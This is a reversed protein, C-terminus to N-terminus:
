GRNHPPACSNRVTLSTPLMIGAFKENEGEITKILQEAAIVGAEAIPTRISTLGPYSCRALITDNYGIVSIDDPISLGAEEIAKMAGIAIFDNRAFVATIDGREALLEKTLLYGNEFQDRSRTGIYERWDLGSEMMAKRFGVVKPSNKEMEPTIDGLIGAISRHGLSLLYKLAECTGEIDNWCVSDPAASLTSYVFIRAIHDFQPTLQPHSAALLVIGDVMGSGLISELEGCVILRYGYERVKPEMAELMRAFHPGTREQMDAAFLAINRTKGTVLARAMTNPTYGMDRAAELVRVRTAESILNDGRQNLVRSVTAASINLKEAIDYITVGM